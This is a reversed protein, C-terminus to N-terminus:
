GWWPSASAPPSRGKVIYKGVGIQLGLGFVMVPNFTGKTTVPVQPPATPGSLKGFYFGGSGLVPVGLIIVTISFSRKFDFNYPFGFDVKFDGNTYVDVVIEPLVLSAAGVEIYRMIDPLILEIHYQGISDNIKKYLIEFQLGKLPPIKDGNVEIRLGYLEPDNFLASLNFAFIAKNADFPPVQLLGFDLGVLWNSQPNFLIANPLGDNGPATFKRLTSIAEKMNKMQAAGQVSVHQGMALLRLDILRKGLGGADPPASSPNATDWEPHGLGQISVLVKKAETRIISVGSINVVVLDISPNFPKTVELRGKKAGRIFWTLELDLPIQDMFDWPEPLRYTGLSPNATKVLLSIVDGVSKDTISLGLSANVGSADYTGVIGEWDLALKTQAPAFAYSLGLNMGNLKAKGKLLGSTQGPGKHEIGFQLSEASLSFDGLQLSWLDSAGCILGAKASAGAPLTIEIQLTNLTLNTNLSSPPNIGNGLFQRATDILAIEGELNGTFRWTKEANRTAVVQLIADAIGIQGGLKADIQAKAQPNQTKDPWVIDFALFPDGLSLLSPIIEWNLGLGVDIRTQLIRKKSPSFRLFFENISLSAASLTDPLWDGIQIDGSIAGLFGEADSGLDGSSTLEWDSGDGPVFLEVDLATVTQGSSNKIEYGGGVTTAIERSPLFPDTIEFDLRASSVTFGDFIDWDGLEVGAKLFNLKKSPLDFHIGLGLLRFRDAIQLESPLEQFINVGGLLQFLDALGFPAPTEEGPPTESLSFELPDNGKTFITVSVWVGSEGIRLLGSLTLKPSQTADSFGSFRLNPKELLVGLGPILDPITALQANLSSLDPLTSEDPFVIGTTQGILDLIQDKIEQLTM